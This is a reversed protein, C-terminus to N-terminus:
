LKKSAQFPCCLLYTSVKIYDTCTTNFCKLEVDNQLWQYEAKIIKNLPKLVNGVKAYAIQISLGTPMQNCSSFITEFNLGTFINEVLIWGKNPDYKILDRYSAMFNPLIGNELYVKKIKDGLEVCTQTLDSLNKEVPILCDTAMNKGFEIPIRSSPDCNSSPNLIKISTPDSQNIYSIQIPSGINYGLSPKVSLNRNANKFELKFVQAYYQTNVYFSKELFEYIVLANKIGSPNHYEIILNYSSIFLSNPMTSNLFACDQLTNNFSCNKNIKILSSCTDFLNPLNSCNVIYQPSNIIKFNDFMNTENMIDADTINNLDITFKKERNKLYHFPAVDNPKQSTLYSIQNQDNIVWIYDSIDFFTKNMDLSITSEYFPFKEFDAQTTLYNSSESPLIIEKYEVCFLSSATNIIYPTNSTFVFNKPICARLIGNQNQELQQQQCKFANLDEISCEPDCCCLLDCLGNTVDCPCFIENQFANQFLFAIFLFTELVYM